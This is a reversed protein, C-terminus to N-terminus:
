LFSFHNKKLVNPSNIKKAFVYPFIKLLLFFGNQIYKM